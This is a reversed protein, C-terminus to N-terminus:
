FSSSLLIYVLRTGLDGETQLQFTFIQFLGISRRKKNAETLLIFGVSQNATEHRLGMKNLARECSALRRSHQLFFFYLEKQLQKGIKRILREQRLNM